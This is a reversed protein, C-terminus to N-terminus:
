GELWVAAQNAVAALMDPTVKEPCVVQLPM